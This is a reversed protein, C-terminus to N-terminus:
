FNIKLMDVLAMWSAVLIALPVIELACFYLIIQLFGGKQCFFIVYAKYFALIKGFIVVLAFFYLVNQLSLDFYVLLLVVPYLLIGQSASVLIQSRLFQKNKKGGFFVGNVITYLLIKLLMYVILMAMFILIFQYDSDIIFYDSVYEKTGFYMIVSVLLCTQIMLLEKIRREGATEMQGEDESRPMRFLSRYQRILYERSQSYVVLTLVFCLLLLGTMLDDNRVVDPVPDGAVGFGVNSVEPHLMSDKAFYTEQDFQPLQIDM